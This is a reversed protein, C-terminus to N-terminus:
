TMIIVKKLTIAQDTKPTLTTTTQQPLTHVILYVPVDTTPIPDFQNQQHAPANCM